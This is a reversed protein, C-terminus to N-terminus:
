LLLPMVSVPLRFVSIPRKPKWSLLAGVSSASTIITPSTLGGGAGGSGSLSLRSNSRFSRRNKTPSPKRTDSPPLSLRVEWVVASTCATPLM